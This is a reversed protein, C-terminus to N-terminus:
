KGDKSSCAPFTVSLTLSLLQVPLVISEVSFSPNAFVPLFYVCLQQKETWCGTGVEKRICFVRARSICSQICVVIQSAIRSFFRCLYFINDRLNQTIRKRSNESVFNQQKFNCLQHFDPFHINKAVVSCQDM